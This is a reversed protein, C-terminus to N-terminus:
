IKQHLLMLSDKTLRSSCHSKWSNKSNIVFNCYNFKITYVINLFLIFSDKTMQVCDKFQKSYYKMQKLICSAKPCHM